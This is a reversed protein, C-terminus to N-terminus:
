SWRYELYNKKAGIDREVCGGGLGLVCVCISSTIPRGLIPLSGV